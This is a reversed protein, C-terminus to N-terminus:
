NLFAFQCCTQQVNAQSMDIYKQTTELHEHGLITGITTVNAGHKAMNTAMTHRIAHPSLQRANCYPKLSEFIMYRATRQDISFVRGVPKSYDYVDHLTELHEPLTYVMREKSGKGHIKLSNEVFDIDCWELSLLEQIRIGTTALLGLMVRVLGYSHSYALQLQDTPITNPITKAVKRRCEYRCPNEVEFGERKLYKYFSSIAALRRNTTAPTLGRDVQDHIFLDIEDRTITSWRPNECRSRMWSAFYHLDKSYSSCTNDSYGRLNRLYNTFRQIM